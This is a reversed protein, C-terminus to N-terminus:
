PTHTGKNKVLHPTNLNFWLKFSEMEKPKRSHKYSILVCNWITDQQLPTHHRLNQYGDLDHYNFSFHSYHLEETSIKNYLKRWSLYLLTSHRMPALETSARSYSYWWDSVYGMHLGTDISISFATQLNRAVTFLWWVPPFIDFVICLSMTKMLSMCFIYWVSFYYRLQM